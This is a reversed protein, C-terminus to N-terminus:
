AADMAFKASAFGGRLRLALELGYCQRSAKSRSLSFITKETPIRNIEEILPPNCISFCPLAHDLPFIKKRKKKQCVYYPSMCPPCPPKPSMNEKAKKKVRRKRKKKKQHERKRRTRKVKYVREREGFERLSPFYSPSFSFSFFFLPFSLPPM